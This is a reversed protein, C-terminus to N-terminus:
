GKERPKMLRKGRREAEGEMGDPLQCHVRVVQRCLGESLARSWDGSSAELIPSSIRDGEAIVQRSHKQFHKMSTVKHSGGLETLPTETSSLEQKSVKSREKRKEMKGSVEDGSSSYLTAQRSKIKRATERGSRAM